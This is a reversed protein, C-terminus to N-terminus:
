GTRDFTVVHSCTQLCCSVTFQLQLTTRVTSQGPIPKNKFEDFQKKEDATLVQVGATLEVHPVCTL